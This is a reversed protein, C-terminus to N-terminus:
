LLTPNGERTRELPCDFLVLGHIICPPYMITFIALWLEHLQLLNFCCLSQCCPASSVVHYFTVSIDTFDERLVSSVTLPFYHWTTKKNFLIKFFFFLYLTLMAVKHIKKERMFRLLVATAPYFGGNQFSAHDFKLPSAPPRLSPITNDSLASMGPTLKLGWSQCKLYVKGIPSPMQSVGLQVSNGKTERWDLM